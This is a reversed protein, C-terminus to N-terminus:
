LGLFYAVKKVIYDIANNLYLSIGEADFSKTNEFFSYIIVFFVLFILLIFPLPYNNKKGKYIVPLNANDKNQNLNSKIEEKNEIINESANYDKNDYYWINGCRICKVHRGYKIQHSDVLYKADCSPCTLIM